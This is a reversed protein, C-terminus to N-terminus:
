EPPFIRALDTDIADRIREVGLSAKNPSGNVIVTFAYWSGAKGRNYGALSVADFPETLTGTKARLSDRLHREGQADFRRKATGEAGPIPLSALFAPFERANGYMRVLLATVDRASVRNEPTLGSGSALVLGAPDGREENAEAIVQKLYKELEQAGQELSAGRARAPLVGLQLTLMDAIFNNSVKALGRLQWDLPYGEVAALPVLSPSPSAREERVRGKVEVGAAKLFAKLADGAYRVPDSVSRYVRGPWAGLAISGTVNLFDGAKERTRVAGLKPVSGAASTSVKSALKVSEMPYPELGVDASAGVADGAGVVAALVSFNVAAASLPSDYAHSSARTGSARNADRTETDFLSTNIVLDGEVRRVGVRAVDTALFWLKENTLYPDGAGDLVLNGKVVGGTKKGSRFLRTEFVHDSGWRELAAAAIVLKTVSAPTLREKSKHDVLVEGTRLDRVYVSLRAGQAELQKLAKLEAPAALAPLCLSASSVLSAARRCPRFFPM